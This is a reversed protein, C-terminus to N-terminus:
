SAQPRLGVKSPAVQGLEAVPLSALNLLYYCSANNYKFNLYVVFLEETYTHGLDQM